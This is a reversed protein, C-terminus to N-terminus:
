QRGTGQANQRASPWASAALGSDLSYLAYVGSMYYSVYVTGDKGITPGNTSWGLGSVTTAWRLTGDPNVAYTKDAQVYITGSAGVTASGKSSDLALTWRVTGDPNLAHLKQNLSIYIVGGSGIVPTVVDSVGTAYKWKLSGDPNLAYLNKDSSSVYLTGDSGLALSMYRHGTKFSWKLTGAATLAYVKQDDSAFYINGQSDIVPSGVGGGAQFLWKRSGDPKLAHLNNDQSGIYITGDAALAPSSTFRNQGASAYTWKVSGDPKLAVVYYVGGPVGVTGFFTSGAYVTGDAAVAPPGTFEIWKQADYLKWLSTGDSKFAALGGEGTVYVASEDQSLAVGNKAQHSGFWKKSGEAHLKLRSLENGACDQGSVVWLAADSAAFQNTTLTLTGDAGVAGVALGAPTSPACVRYASLATGEKVSLKLAISANQAVVVSSDALSKVKNPATESVTLKGSLTSIGQCVLSVNVQKSSGGAAITVTGTLTGAQAPCTGKVTVTGTQGAALTGSTPTVSLATGSSSATYNLSATGTNKLSLPQETTGSVGASLSLQTPTVELGTPAPGSDSPGCAMLLAMLLFFPTLRNAKM